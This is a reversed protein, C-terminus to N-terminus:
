SLVEQGRASEAEVRALCIEWHVTRIVKARMESVRRSGHAKIVCDHGGM